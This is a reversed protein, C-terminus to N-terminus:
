VLWLYYNAMMLPHFHYDFELEVLDSLAKPVEVYHKTVSLLTVKVVRRGKRSYKDGTVHVLAALL